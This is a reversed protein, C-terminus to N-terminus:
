VTEPSLGSVICGIWRQAQDAGTAEGSRRIAGGKAALTDSILDRGMIKRRPSVTSSVGDRRPPFPTGTAIHVWMKATAEACCIPAVKRPFRKRWAPPTPLVTARIRNPAVRVHRV